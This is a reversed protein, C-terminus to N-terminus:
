VGEERKKYDPLCVRNRGQNKAEYLMADAKTIHEGTTEDSGRERTSVGISVTVKTIMGAPGPITTNEVNRRITEAVDAAGDLDTNPLLVIFEEGGWRASFDASRKHSENLAKAVAKLALDGQPHGYTDNYYKFRDVDIMLISAPTNDRSARSWEAALRNEFYRRNPLGTLQDFMSLKQIARLQELIQIQNRVRLKVITQSFPKTIYDVAGLALGKEENVQGSLSTIFLVPIDRTHETNKLTRLVDYGDMDPMLIDLLIVDPLFDMAAKLGETGSAATYVTYDPYLIQSLATLNTEQDDVILISYKFKEM